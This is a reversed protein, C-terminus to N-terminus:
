KQETVSSMFFFLVFIEQIDIIKVIFIPIKKKNAFLACAVWEFKSRSLKDSRTEPRASAYKFIEKSCAHPFILVGGCDRVVTTMPIKSEPVSVVCGSNVPTLNPVVGGSAFISLSGSPCPVSTAPMIPAFLTDKGM